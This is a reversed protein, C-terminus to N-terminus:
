HDRGRYIWMPRTEGAREFGLNAYFDVARGDAILVQQHFGSYRELLVRMIGTGIGSGQYDPLVLLHPYYVVLSGDSIANGLGVLKPGDWASVLSDSNILAHRLAEPKEAASWGNSRYLTLIKELPIDTTEDYGISRAQM